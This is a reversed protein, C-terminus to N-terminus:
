SRRREGQRFIASTAKATGQRDGLIAQADIRESHKSSPPDQTGSRCAGDGPRSERRRQRVATRTQVAKSGAFPRLGEATVLDSARRLQQSAPNLLQGGRSGPAGSVQIKGPRISAARQRGSPFRALASEAKACPVAATAKGSAAPSAPAHCLEDLVTAADRTVRGRRASGEGERPKPGLPAGLRNCLDFQPHTPLAFASRWARGKKASLRCRNWLQQVWFGYGDLAKKM